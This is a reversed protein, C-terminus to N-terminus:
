ALAATPTSLGLAKAVLPVDKRDVFWRSRDRVAPVRGEACLKWLHNYAVSGGYRERLERMLEILPLRDSSTSMWYVGEM